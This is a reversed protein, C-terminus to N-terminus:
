DAEANSTSKAKCKAEHRKCYSTKAFRMICFRCQYPKEIKHTKQHRKLADSRKFTWECLECRYKKAPSQTTLLLKPCGLEHRKCSTAYMFKTHCGKCCYKKQTEHSILHIKLRSPWCFGEGCHECVYVKPGMEEATDEHNSVCTYTGQHCRFCHQFMTAHSHSKFICMRCAYLQPRLHANVHRDLTSPKCFIAGCVICEYGGVASRKNNSSKEATAGHVM